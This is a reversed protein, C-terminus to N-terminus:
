AAQSGRDGDVFVSGLPTQDRFFHIEEDSEFWKAVFPGLTIKVGCVHDNRFMYAERFDLDTGRSFSAMRQKALMTVRNYISHLSNENPRDM